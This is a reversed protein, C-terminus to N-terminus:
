ISPRARRAMLEALQEDLGVPQAHGAQGGEDLSPRSVVVTAAVEGERRGVGGWGGLGARALGDEGEDSTGKGSNEALVEGYCTRCSM